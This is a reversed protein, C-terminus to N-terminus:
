SGCEKLYLGGEEVAGEPDDLYDYMTFGWTDCESCYMAACCSDDWIVEVDHKLDLAKMYSEDAQQVLGPKAFHPAAHLPRYSRRRAKQKGHKPAPLRDTARLEHILYDYQYALTACDCEMNGEGHVSCSALQIAFMESMQSVQSKLTKRLRTSL